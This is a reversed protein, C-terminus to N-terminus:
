VLKKDPIVPRLAADHTHSELANLLDSVVPDKTGRQAMTQAARSVGSLADMWSELMAGNVGM